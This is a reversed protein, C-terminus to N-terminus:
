KHEAWGFYLRPSHQFSLSGLKGDSKRRVVVFPAMFGEVAFDAQLQDVDWVQGHKAELATRQAAHTNIEVLAQRRANETPDAKEEAIVEAIVEAALAVQEALDEETLGLEAATKMKM